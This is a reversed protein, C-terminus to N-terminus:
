PLTCLEWENQFTPTRTGGTGHFQPDKKSKLPGTVVIPTEENKKTCKRSPQGMDNTRM